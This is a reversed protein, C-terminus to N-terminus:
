LSSRIGKVLVQYNREEESLSKRLSFISERASFVKNAIDDRADEDPFSIKIRSIRDVNLSVNASGKMYPVLVDDKHSLLYAYVYKTLSTNKFNEKPTLVAIITAAEFKGSVYHINNISAHGHGTSSVLPICVSESDFSYSDYKKFGASTTVFDFGDDSDLAEAAGVNGKNIDFLEGLRITPVNKPYDYDRLYIKPCLDFNNDKIEDISVFRHKSRVEKYDRNFRNKFLDVLDPLESGDIKEKKAGDSYGDNQLGYFWVNDTQGGKSFILVATSVSAYPKFIWHPLGIVAEVQNSLLAKRLKTHARSEGEVVGIPVIVAARGGIKLMRLILAVFLLETKKTKVTRLLEPDVDEEDLSGKFPPNALVLDFGEKASQPFREVFGQSLTDQYHIDPQAVGHMVLNMAAIRLMTADFDFGHFMDSDVHERHEALLDGTFLKQERKKGEATLAPDGNENTVVETFTGEPSSYKELMFEYTTSLFGATGCAPDCIRDTATPNMLDIIARIIHRPTRFQGNIGATTLKSLLYEYLDGKTDGKDLPLEDVMDRARVLLSPKQIMLQADKMFEAFLTGENSEASSIKFYPFLEDRVTELLKDASEIHMLKQWRLHQQEDNFRRKFNKGTRQARKEDSTENMDLLRAYMLFTIQEIVTLPNTIGGTWFEEWLKDINSKLAGTIM